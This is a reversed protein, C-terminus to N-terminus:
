GLPRGFLQSWYIGAASKPDAAFGVGMEPYAPDMLNTCHRASRVWDAVVQEPTSQGAAVNEAIRSWRYGARTAREDPSSGDSGTHGSNGHAAMDRAHALAARDLTESRALAPAADFRKWGCRRSSARAENVLALVRAGVAAADGAAPPALAGALVVFVAGDRVAVGFDRYAPNAIDRCGRAALEKAIAEGSTGTVQLMASRVARYGSSTVADRLKKGEALSVAARDLLPERRLEPAGGAGCGRARIAAIDAAISDDARATGSAHLAILSCALAPLAKV